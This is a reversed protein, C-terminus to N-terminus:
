AGSSFFFRVASSDILGTFSYLYRHPKEVFALHLIFDGVFEELCVYQALDIWPVKTKRPASNCFPHLALPLALVSLLIAGFIVVNYARCAPTSAQLM